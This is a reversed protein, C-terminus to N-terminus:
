ISRLSIQDKVGTRGVRLELLGFQPLAVPLGHREEGYKIDYPEDYDRISIAQEWSPTRIGRKPLTIFQGERNVRTYSGSHDIEAQHNHGMWFLNADFRSYVLDWELAGRSRKAGAGMGHCAWVDYRRIAENEGHNFKFRIINQYDGFKADGGVEKLQRCLRAAPNTGHFKLASTEHNGMGIFLIKDAYPKLFDSVYDIIYDLYDDRNAVAHALTFRKLDKPMLCSFMDGNLLIGDYNDYCYKLSETLQEKECHMADIHMDSFLAFKFEKQESYDYKLEIYKM